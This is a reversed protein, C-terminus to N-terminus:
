RRATAIWDVAEALRLDLEALRDSFRHDRADVLWLRKPEGARAVLDEIESVSVFEDHTSHVAALPVLSVRDVIESV